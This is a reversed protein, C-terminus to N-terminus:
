RGSIPAGDKSWQYSFPGTGHAVTSFAVTTGPCNTRSSLADATTPINVTLRAPNTVSNCLGTVEVAYTGADGATLGSLTLSNDTQGSLPASDKSWQYTFPGTGHAVTSFAVTTGPCNTQSVLADATTPVNVTLSAR